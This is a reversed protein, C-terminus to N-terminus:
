SQESPCPALLRWNLVHVFLEMCEIISVVSALNKYEKISATNRVLVVIFPLSPDNPYFTSLSYREM